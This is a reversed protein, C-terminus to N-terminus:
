FESYNQALQANKDQVPVDSEIPTAYLTVQAVSIKFQTHSSDTSPSQMAIADPTRPQASYSLVKSGSSSIAGATDLGASSSGDISTNKTSSEIKINQQDTNKALMSYPLAGNAALIGDINM